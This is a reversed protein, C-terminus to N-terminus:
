QDQSAIRPVLRKILRGAYKGILRVPRVMYYLFSLRGPLSVIRWELPTPNIFDICYRGRDSARSMTRLYFLNQKALSARKGKKTFLLRYAAAALAIVERDKMINEALAEPLGAGLLDHALYLGLYLMRESNSQRAREWVLSWDIDKDHRMLESIDCIMSLRNWSHKAGHVCLMLFLDEPSLGPVSAENINIRVSRRWYREIDPAFSYRSPIVQWHLDVMLMIDERTFAHECTLKIYAAEQSDSLDFQPEYSEGVLLRRAEPVDRERVLIDLDGAQRLSLNGYATLALSPGKFSLVPIGHSEFLEVIKVLEGTL